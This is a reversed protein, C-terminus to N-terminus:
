HLTHHPKVDKHRDTVFQHEVLVALCLMLLVTSYMPVRSKHHWLDASIQIPYGGHPVLYLHPLNFDAIRSWHRATDGICHLIPM